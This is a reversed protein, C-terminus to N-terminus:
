SQSNGKTIVAIISEKLTTWPNTRTPNTGLGSGVRRFQTKFFRVRQQGGSYVPQDPDFKLPHRAPRDADPKQSFELFCYSFELDPSFRM